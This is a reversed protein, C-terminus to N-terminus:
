EELVEGEKGTGDEKSKDWKERYSWGTETGDEKRRDWEGELMGEERDGGGKSQGVKGELELWERDWGEVLGVKGGKTYGGEEQGM